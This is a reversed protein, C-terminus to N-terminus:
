KDDEYEEILGSVAVKMNSIEQKSGTQKLLHILDQWYAKREGVLMLREEVLAKSNTRLEKIEALEKSCKNKIQQRLQKIRATEEDAQEARDALENKIKFLKTGLKRIDKNPHKMATMILDLTSNQKTLDTPM